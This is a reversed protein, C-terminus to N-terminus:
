AAAMLLLLGDIFDDMLAQWADRESGLPALYTEETPCAVAHPASAVAAHPSSSSVVVAHPPTDDAHRQRAASSSSVRSAPPSTCRATGGELPFISPVPAFRGTANFDGVGGSLRSQSLTAEASARDHLRASAADDGLLDELARERHRESWQRQRSASAGDHWLLAEDVREVPESVSRTQASTRPLTRSAAGDRRPGPVGSVTAAVTDPHAAHCAPPPAVSPSFSRSSSHRATDQSRRPPPPPPPPPPSGGHSEMTTVPPSTPSLRREELYRDAWRQFVHPPPCEGSLLFRLDEEEESLRELRTRLANTFVACPADEPVRPGVEAVGGGGGGCARKSWDAGTCDRGEWRLEAGGEPVDVAAADASNAHHPSRAPSPSFFLRRRQPPEAAGIDDQGSAPTASRSRSPPPVSSSLLPGRQPLSPPLSSAQCRMWDMQECAAREACAVRHLQVSADLELWERAAAEERLLLGARHPDLRQPHVASSPLSDHRGQAVSEHRLRASAASPSTQRSSPPSVVGSTSAASARRLGHSASSCTSAPPWGEQSRATTSGPCCVARAAAGDSNGDDSKHAASSPSVLSRHHVLFDDASLTMARVRRHASAELHSRGRPSDWTLVAGNPVSPSADRPAASLRAHSSPSACQAVCVSRRRHASERGASDARQRVDSLAVDSGARWTQTAQEARGLQCRLLSSPTHSRGVGVATRTPAAGSAESGTWPMGASQWSAHLVGVSDTTTRPHHGSGHWEGRVGATSTSNHLSAASAASAGDRLRSSVSLSAPTPPLHACSSVVGASEGVAAPMRRERVPATAAAVATAVGGRLHAGPPATSSLGHLYRAPPPAARAWEALLGLPTDRPVAPGRFRNEEEHSDRVHEHHAGHLHSPPPASRWAAGPPSRWHPPSAVCSRRAGGAGTATASTNTRDALRAFHDPLSAPGGCVLPASTPDNHLLFATTRTYSVVRPFAAPQTLAAPDGAVATAAHRTASTSTGMVPPPDDRRSSM